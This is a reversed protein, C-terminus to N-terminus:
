WACAPRWTTRSRSPTTTVACATAESTSRPGCLRESSAGLRDPDEVLGHFRVGALGALQRRVAEAAPGDGALELPIQRASLDRAVEVLVDAGQAASLGGVSAVRRSRDRRPPVTGARLPQNPLVLVSRHGRRAAAAVADAAEASIAAVVDADRVAGAVLLRYAAAGIPRRLRQVSWDVMWLARRTTRLGASALAFRAEHYVLPDCGVLVLDRSGLHALAVAFGVLEAGGRGEEWARVPGPEDVRVTPTDDGLPLREARRRAGGPLALACFAVPRGRERLSRALRHAPGNPLLAHTAVIWTPHESM